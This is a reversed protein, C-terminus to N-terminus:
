VLLREVVGIAIREREAWDGRILTFPLHRAELTERWRRRCMERGAPDPFCRQPDPTFPVDTDCLLYHAFGQAREDAEARVWAPCDGPFLLDDWLVCTLLETDCFVVRSAKAAAAEEYGIQGLAITGLDAPKIKGGRQEWFERVFETSWPAGFHAALRQALTTKGTSEPGFVAIRKPTSSM